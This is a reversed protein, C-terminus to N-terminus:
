ACASTSEEEALAAGPRQQGRHGRDKLPQSTGNMRTPECSSSAMPSGGMRRYEIFFFPYPIGSPLQSAPLVTRTLPLEPPPLHRDVFAHLVIASLSPLPSDHRCSSPKEPDPTRAATTSRPLSARNVRPRSLNGRRRRVSPSPTTRTALDPSRHWSRHRYGKYGQM